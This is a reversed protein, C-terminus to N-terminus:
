IYLFVICVRCIDREFVDFCAFKIKCKTTNSHETTTPISKVIRWNKDDEIKKWELSITEGKGASVLSNIKHLNMM